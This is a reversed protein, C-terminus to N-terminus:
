PKVELRKINELNNDIYNSIRERGERKVEKRRDRGEGWKGCLV